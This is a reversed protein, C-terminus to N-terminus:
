RAVGLQEIWQQIIRQVAAENASLEAENALTLVCRDSALWKLLGSPDDIVFSRDNSQAKAGTHLVLQIQKPPHLRFTAFHDDIRFSPANWKIEEAIRRDLALVIERLRLIGAAHPHELNALLDQVSHQVARGQAPKRATM